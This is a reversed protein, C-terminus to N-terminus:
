NKVNEVSLVTQHPRFWYNREYRTKRKFKLVRIKDWKKNDVVKLVVSSKNVFPQWVKVEKWDDDFTALVNEVIVENWIEQELKDVTIIDWKKVIYQHWQLEIIAYMQTM